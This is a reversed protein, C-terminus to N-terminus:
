FIYNYSTLDLKMLFSTSIFTCSKIDGMGRKEKKTENTFVVTRCNRM